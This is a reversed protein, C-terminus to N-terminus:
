CGWALQLHDQVSTQHLVVVPTQALPELIVLSGAVMEAEQQLPSRQATLYM